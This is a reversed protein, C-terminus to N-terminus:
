TQSEQEEITLSANQRVPQTLGGGGFGSGMGIQPAHAFVPGPARPSATPMAAISPRLILPVENSLSIKQVYAPDRQTIELSEFVPRFDARSKCWSALDSLTVAFGKRRQSTVYTGLEELSKWDAINKQSQFELRTSQAAPLGKQRAAAFSRAAAQLAQACWGMMEGIQLRENQNNAVRIFPLHSDAEMAHVMTMEFIEDIRREHELQNVSGDVYPNFGDVMNQPTIGTIESIVHGTAKIFPNTSTHIAAGLITDPTHGNWAMSQAPQTFDIWRAFHDSEFSSVVHRANKIVEYLGISKLKFLEDAAFRTVDLGMAFPFEEPRTNPQAKLPNLGRKYGLIDIANQEGNKQMMFASFIDAKMNSRSRALTNRRPQLIYDQKVHPIKKDALLIFTDLALATHHYLDFLADETTKYSDLNLGIFLAHHTTKSFGFLKKEVGIAIGMFGSIEQVTSRLQLLNKAATYFPAGMMNSLTKNIVDLKQGRRYILFVPECLPWILQIQKHLDEAVNTIFNQNLHSM